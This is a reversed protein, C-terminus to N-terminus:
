HLCVPPSKVCLCSPVFVCHMPALVPGIYFISPNSKPPLSFIMRGKVERSLFTIRPLQLRCANNTRTGKYRPTKTNREGQGEEETYDTYETTLREQQVVGKPKAELSTGGLM